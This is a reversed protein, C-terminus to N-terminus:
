LTFNLKVSTLSSIIRFIIFLRGFLFLQPKSLREVFIILASLSERIFGKVNIM